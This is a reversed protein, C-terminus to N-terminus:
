IRDWGFIIRTRIQGVAVPSGVALDRIVRPIVSVAQILRQLRPQSVLSPMQDDGQGFSCFAIKM